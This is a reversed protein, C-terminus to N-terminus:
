TTETAWVNCTSFQKRMEEGKGAEKSKNEESKGKM